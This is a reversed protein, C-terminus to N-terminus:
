ILDKVKYYFEYFAKYKTHRYCLNSFQNLFFKVASGDNSAVIARAAIDNIYNFKDLDKKNSLYEMIMPNFDFDFDIDSIKKLYRELKKIREKLNYYRLQHLEEIRKDFEDTKRRIHEELEKKQSKAEDGFKEVEQQFEEYKKKNFIFMM